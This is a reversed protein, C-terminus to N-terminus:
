AVAAKKSKAIKALEEPIEIDPTGENATWRVVGVNKDALWANWAKIIVAIVVQRQSQSSSTKGAARANVFYNRLMLVPHGYDMNAGTAMLKFFAESRDAGGAITFLHHLAAGVSLSFYTKTANYPAAGMLGLSYRIGEHRHLVEGLESASLRANVRYAKEGRLKMPRTFRWDNEYLWLIGLAAALPKSQKEGGVHLADAVSRAKGQDITNFVAPDAGRVVVSEFSEGSLTCALLRHQGDLLEDDTSIVIAEGNLKWSGEMMDYAYKEVVGQSVERNKGNRSLLDAAKEPTITEVAVKM